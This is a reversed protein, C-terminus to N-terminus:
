GGQDRASMADTHESGPDGPPDLTRDAIAMQLIGAARRRVTYKLLM